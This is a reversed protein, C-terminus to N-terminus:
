LNFAISAKLGSLAWRLNTSWGQSSGAHATFGAYASRTRESLDFFHSEILSSCILEMQLRKAFRQITLDMKKKPFSDLIIDRGKKFM